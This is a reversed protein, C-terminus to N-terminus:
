AFNRIQCTEAQLIVGFIKDKLAASWASSTIANKWKKWIIYVLVLKWGGSKANQHHKQNLFLYQNTEQCKKNKLEFHLTFCFKFFLGALEMVKEGLTLIKVKPALEWSCPLWM